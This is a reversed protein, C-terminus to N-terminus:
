WSSLAANLSLLAIVMAAGLAVGLTRLPAARRVEIERVNELSIVAETPCVYRDSNPPRRCEADVVIEGQDIRPDRVLRRVGDTGTVRVLGPREEDILTRADIQSTRWTACASLPLVLLALVAVPHRTNM